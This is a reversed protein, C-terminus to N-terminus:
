DRHFMYVLQQGVLRTTGTTLNGDDLKGDIIRLLATEFAVSNMPTMVVAAQTNVPQGEPVAYQLALNVRLDVSLASHPNIPRAQVSKPLASADFGAPVLGVGNLNYVGNPMGPTEFIMVSFDEAVKKIDNTVRTAVSNMRVKRFAPIAMAALLGIIVVVIMIEVLTFARSQAPRM